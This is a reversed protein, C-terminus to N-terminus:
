HYHHSLNSPHEDVVEVCNVNTRMCNSLCIYDVVNKGCSSVYTFLPGKCSMDVNVPFLGLKICMDLVIKGRNNELQGSRTDFLHANFDGALIIKGQRYNFNICMDELCKLTETFESLSSNTSPLYVSCFVFSENNTRIKIAAVRDDGVSLRQVKLHRRWIIAVGGQGRKWRTNIDNQDSVKAHYDFDKRLNELLYLEDTYLWHESLAM